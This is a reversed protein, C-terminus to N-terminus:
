RTSNDTAATTARPAFRWALRVVAALLVTIGISKPLQYLRFTADPTLSGQIMASSFRAQSVLPAMIWHLIIAM